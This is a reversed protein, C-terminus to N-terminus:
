GDTLHEVVYLVRGRLVSRPVVEGASSSESGVSLKQELVPAQTPALVRM